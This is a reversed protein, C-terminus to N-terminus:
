GKSGSMDGRAMEIYWRTLDSRTYVYNSRYANAQLTPEIFRLLKVGEYFDIQQAILWESFAASRKAGTVQTRKITSIAEFMEEPSLPFPKSAILKADPPPSPHRPACDERPVPPAGRAALPLSSDTEELPLSTQERQIPVSQLRPKAAVPTPLSVTKRPKQHYHNWFTETLLEDSTQIRVVSGTLADLLRLSGTKSQELKYVMKNEFTRYLLEAVQDITEAVMAGVAIGTDFQILRTLPHIERYFQARQECYFIVPRGLSLAMAAEADKGYSEKEGGCYVLAKACKVMLCEILGKDEHGHAASLTPDFYRLNMAKLRTDSFVKECINAMNVFHDRTRMSTAVYVDLDTLMSLYYRTNELAAARAESFSRAITQYHTEIDSATAVVRDLVESASFLLGERRSNFEPPLSNTLLDRITADHGGAATHIRYAETLARRLDSTSQPKEGYSKCATESILYRRDRDIPKLPLPPGRRKIADNDIRKALFYDQLELHSFERLARFATRVNGFYLLGDVYLRHLGWALQDLSRITRDNEWHSQFGPLASLDYPHHHPAELWYYQFFGDSVPAEHALVLLQNLQVASLPNIEITGLREFVDNCTKDTLWAGIGGGPVHYLKMRELIQQKTAMKAKRPNPKFL